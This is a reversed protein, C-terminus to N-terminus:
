KSRSRVRSQPRAGGQQRGSTHTASGYVAEVFENVLEFVEAIDRADAIRDVFTM